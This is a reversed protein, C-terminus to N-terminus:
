ALDSRSKAFISIKYALPVFGADLRQRVALYMIMGVIHFLLRNFSEIFQRVPQAQAGV